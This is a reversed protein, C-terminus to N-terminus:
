KNELPCNDPCDVCMPCSNINKAYERGSFNKFNEIIDDALEEIKIDAQVNLDYLNQILKERFKSM